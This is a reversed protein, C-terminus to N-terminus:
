GDATRLALKEELVKRDAPANINSFTEYIDSCDATAYGPGAYWHDVKRGGEDLYNRLDDLLRTDLLAFVNQLREGDHAVAIRLGAGSLAVHLRQVIDGSLLPSDCPAVAIYRTRAAQMGAVIGALPGQFGTNDDAFVPYGFEGYSDRNRNASILIDAVQPRLADIVYAIMPRDNVTVLGKDAGGMRRAKGGALIVGTVENSVDASTAGL